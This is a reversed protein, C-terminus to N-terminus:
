VLIPSFIGLSVIIGDMWIVTRNRVYHLKVIGNLKVSNNRYLLLGRYRYPEAQLCCMVTSMLLSM